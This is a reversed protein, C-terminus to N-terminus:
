FTSAAKYLHGADSILEHHRRRTSTKLHQTLTVHFQDAFSSIAPKRALAPAFRSGLNPLKALAGQYRVKFNEFLAKM